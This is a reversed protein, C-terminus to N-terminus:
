ANEFDQVEYNYVGSSLMWGDAGRSTDCLCSEGESNTVFVLGHDGWSGSQFEVIVGEALADNYGMYRLCYMLFAAFEYCNGTNEHEAYKHAYEIRWQAGAPHQADDREVYESWAVATYVAFAADERSQDTTCNSDCFKKVEEDLKADGTTFKGSSLWPDDVGASSAAQAEQVALQLRHVDQTLTAVEAKADKAEKQAAAAEEQARTIRPRMVLVTVTVSLVMGLILAGVATALPIRRGRSGARSSTGRRRTESSRRTSTGGRSAEPRRRSRSSSGRSRTRSRTDSRSERAGQEDRSGYTDRTGYTEPMDYQSRDAYGGYSRYGGREYM